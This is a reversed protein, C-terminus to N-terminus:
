IRREYGQRLMSMEICKIFVGDDLKSTISEQIREKGKDFLMKWENDQLVYGTKSSAFRLKKNERDIEFKVLEASAIGKFVLEIM